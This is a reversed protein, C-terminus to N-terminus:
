ALKLNEVLLIYGNNPIPEWIKVKKTVANLQNSYWLNAYLTQDYVGKQIDQFAKFREEDNTGNVLVKAKDDFGKLYSFTGDSFVFLGYSAPDIYDAGTGQIYFGPTKKSNILDVQAAADRQRVNVNVGIKKWDAIMVSVYEAVPSTVHFDIEFGDSFGAAVLRAKADIIDYKDVPLDAYGKFYPLGFSGGLVAEGSLLSKVIGERNIAISMAKRVRADTTPTNLGLYPDMFELWNGVVGKAVVVRAGGIAEVAKRSSASIPTIDAEGTQLRAIRTAEEPVTTINYDKIYPTKRYHGEVATLTAQDGKRGSVFKFPGAAIPAAEFGDQGLKLFTAAPIIAWNNSRIDLQPYPTKLKFVATNADPTDVRDLAAAIETKRAHRSASDKMFEWTFKVDAATVRTGDHFKALENLKFTWTLGDPSKEYSKALAPYLEVKDGKRGTNVLGEGIADRYLIQNGSTYTLPNFAPLEGGPHAVNLTGAPKIVETTPSAQTGTSTSGGSTSTPATRPSTDEDDGCGVTALGTAGIATTSLGALFARRRFGKGNLWYNTHKEM